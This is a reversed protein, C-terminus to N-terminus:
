AEYKDFAESQTTAIAYLTPVAWLCRGSSADRPLCTVIGQVGQREFISVNKLVTKPPGEGEGGGPLGM